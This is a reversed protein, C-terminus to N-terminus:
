PLTVMEFPGFPATKPSDTNGIAAGIIAPERGGELRFFLTVGPSGPVGLSIAFQSCTVNGSECGLSILKLGAGLGADVARTFSDPAVYTGGTASIALWYGPESDNAQKGLCISSDPQLGPAGGAGDCLFYANSSLGHRFAFLEGEAADRAITDAFECLWQPLGPSFCGADVADEGGVAPIVRVATLTTPEGPRLCPPFYDNSLAIQPGDSSMQKVQWFVWSLPEACWNQWSWEGLVGSFPFELTAKMSRTINAESPYAPGPDVPPRILGIVLPGSLRCPTAGSANLRVLVDDGQNVTELAFAVNASTCDALVRAPSSTPNVTALPTPSGLPPAIQDADDRALLSVVLTAAVIMIALAGVGAALKWALAASFRRWLAPRTPMQAWIQVAEERSAAGLKGLIERVHYKAGDLSVGLREAIEANTLGHALMEIVDRQRPTLDHRYPTKLHTPRM